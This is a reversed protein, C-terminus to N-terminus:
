ISSITNPPSFLGIVGATYLLHDGQPALSLKRFANSSVTNKPNTIMAFGSLAGFKTM